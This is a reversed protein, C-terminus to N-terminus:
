YCLDFCQCSCSYQDLVFFFFLFGCKLKKLNLFNVLQLVSVISGHTRTIQMIVDWVVKFYCMMCLAQSSLFPTM